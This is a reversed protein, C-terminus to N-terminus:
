TAAPVAAFAAIRTTVRTLLAKLAAYDATRERTAENMYLKRNIEIQISHRNDQPRGFRKVLEVGKYPDNIAVSLGEDRFADAILATM